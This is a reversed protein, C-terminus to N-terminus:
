LSLNRSRIFAQSIQSGCNLASDLLAAHRPLGPTCLQVIIFGDSGPLAPSLEQRFSSVKCGLPGDEVPCRGVTRAFKRVFGLVGSM